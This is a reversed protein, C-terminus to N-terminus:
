RSPPPAPAPEGRAEYRREYNRRGLAYHPFRTILQDYLRRAEDEDGRRAVVEALNNLVRPDDPFRAVASRLIPEAEALRGQRTLLAALNNAAKRAVDGGPGIPSTGGKRGVAVRYAREADVPRGREEFSLALQYPPGPSVSTKETADTWLRVDDAFVHGRVAATTALGFCLAAALGHRVVPSPARAVAEAALVCLGLASLLLYRDAMLNELTVVVQSTPALPLLFWALAGWVVVALQRDRRHLIAGAAAWVVLPLYALWAGLEGPSRAPVDYFVSLNAPWILNELYRLFVPGMTAAAALRSGGPPGSTMSVLAGVKAHLVLAGIAVVLSPWFFAQQPRRGKLVDHVPLLLPAAVAVGKSFCALGFLLPVLWVRRRSSGAYVTLAAAVFLLALLDKRGALWAVSEAHIPHLAFLWTSLEAAFTSDLARRLYSRLVLIGALYLVLSLARMVQPHLDHVRAEIWQLTDRVPLYEAGLGMRTDHRLDTWIAALAGADARRLLPSQRILWPDDYSLFGGSLSPAYTAAVVLALLWPAARSLRGATMTM